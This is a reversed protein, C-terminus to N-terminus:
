CPKLQKLLGATAKDQRLDLDRSAVVYGETEVSSIYITIYVPGDALAGASCFEKTVISIDLAGTKNQAKDIEVQKRIGDFKLAEQPSL